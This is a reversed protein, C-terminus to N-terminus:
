ILGFRINQEMFIAGQPAVTSLLDAGDWFEVVPTVSVEQTTQVVSSHSKRSLKEQLNLVTQAYDIGKTEKKTDEKSKVLNKKQTKENNDSIVPLNGLNIFSASISAM